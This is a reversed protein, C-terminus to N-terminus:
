DNKIIAGFTFRQIEVFPRLFITKCQACKVKELIERRYICYQEDQTLIEWNRTVYYSIMFLKIPNTHECKTKFLIPVQTHNQSQGM